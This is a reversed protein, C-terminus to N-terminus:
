TDPPSWFQLFPLYYYSLGTEPKMVEHCYMRMQPYAWTMTVLISQKCMVWVLVWNYWISYIENSITSNNSSAFVMVVIPYWSCITLKCPSEMTSPPVFKTESTFQCKYIIGMSLRFPKLSFSFTLTHFIRWKWSLRTNSYQENPSKFDYRLFCLWSNLCVIKCLSVLSCIGNCPFVLCLRACNSIQDYWTSIVWCQGDKGKKTDTTHLWHM